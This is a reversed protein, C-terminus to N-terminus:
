IVLTIIHGNVDITYTGAKFDGDLAISDDFLACGAPFVADADWERFLRVAIHQGSRRQEIRTPVRSSDTHYGNVNLCLGDGVEIQVTDIHAPRRILTNPQPHPKIAALM